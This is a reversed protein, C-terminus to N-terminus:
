RRRCAAELEARQREALASIRHAQELDFRTQIEASKGLGATSLTAARSADILKSVAERELDHRHMLEALEGSATRYDLRGCPDANLWARHLVAVGIAAAALVAVPILRSSSRM